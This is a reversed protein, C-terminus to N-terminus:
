SVLWLGTLCAVVSLLVPLGTRWPSDPSPPLSGAFRVRDRQTLLFDVMRPTM